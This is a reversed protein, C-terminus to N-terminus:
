KKKRLKYIMMLMMWLEANESMKEALKQLMGALNDQIFPVRAMVWAVDDDSAEGDVMRMLIEEFTAGWDSELEMLEEDENM